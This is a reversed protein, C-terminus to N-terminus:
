NETNELEEADTQTHTWWHELSQRLEAMPFNAGPCKTHAGPVEQHGIIREAPIRYQRMLYQLLVRLSHLQHSTPNDIEFNGVLCIGIGRQNFERVGAHAGIEQESWRSGVEIQGDPTQTGNGIVFHYGLSDWGKHWRHYRDFAAASGERTGSHHIVIWKWDLPRSKRPELLKELHSNHNNEPAPRYAPFFRMCSRTIAVFSFTLLLLIVVHLVHRGTSGAKFWFRRFLQSYDKM